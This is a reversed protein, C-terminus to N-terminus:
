KKANTFVVENRPEQQKHTLRADKTHIFDTNLM